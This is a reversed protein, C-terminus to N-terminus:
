TPIDQLFMDLPLETGFGGALAKEYLRGAVAAFQVGQIGASVGADGEATGYSQNALVTIEDDHERGFSEGVEWDVCTVRRANPFRAPNPLGRPIADREETTGAAYSM